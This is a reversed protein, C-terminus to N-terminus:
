LSDYQKAMTTYKFVLIISYNSSISWIIVIGFYSLYRNSFLLISEAISYWKFKKLIKLTNKTKKRSVTLAKGIRYFFLVPLLIKHKYYFPYFLKVEELPMFLGNFILHRKGQKINGYKKIDNEIKHYLTGYTGSFIIYELPIAGEPSRKTKCLM